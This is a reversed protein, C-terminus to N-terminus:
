GDNKLGLHHWLGGKLSVDDIHITNKHFFLAKIPGNNIYAFAEPMESQGKAVLAGYTTLQYVMHGNRKGVVRILGMFRTYTGDNSAKLAANSRKTELDILERMTLGKPYKVSWRLLLKLFRKMELNPKRVTVQLWPRTDFATDGWYGRNWLHRCIFLCRDKPAGTFARSGIVATFTNQTLM